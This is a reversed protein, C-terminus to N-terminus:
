SPAPGEPEVTAEVWASTADDWREWRGEVENWQAGRPAPGSPARRDVDPVPEHASEVEDARLLERALNAALPNEDTPSVGDGADEGAVVWVQAADDWVEWRRHLEDWQAGPVPPEGSPAGRALDDVPEPGDEGAQAALRAHVSSGFTQELDGDAVAPDYALSTM